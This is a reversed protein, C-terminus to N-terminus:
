RKSFFSKFGFNTFFDLFFTTFVLNNLFFYSLFNNNISFIYNQFENIAILNPRFIGFLVLPKFSFSIICFFWDFGFFEFFIESVM